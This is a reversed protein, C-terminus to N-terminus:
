GGQAVRYSGRLAEYEEESAFREKQIRCLYLLDTTPLVDDLNTLEVVKGKDFMGVIEPHLRLSEPSVLNLRIDFRSLGMALSRM